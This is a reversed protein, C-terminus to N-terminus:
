DKAPTADGKKGKKSPSPSPRAPHSEERPTVHPTPAAHMAAKEPTAPKKSPTAEAEKKVPFVDPEKKAPPAEVQKTVPPVVPAPTAPKRPEAGSRAVPKEVPPTVRPVIQGGVAPVAPVAPKTVAAAAPTVPKLSIGRPTGGSPEAEAPKTKSPVAQLEAAVVVHAHSTEPNLGKTQTQIQQKLQPRSAPDKIGEWGKMVKGADVTKTAKATFFKPDKPASVAPAAVILQNGVTKAILAGAGGAHLQAPNFKRNQVLTLTPIPHTVVASV